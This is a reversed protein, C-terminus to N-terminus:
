SHQRVEFFNDSFMAHVLRKIQKVPISGTSMDVPVCSTSKDDTLSYTSKDAVSGATTDDLVSSLDDSVSGATMDDLVSSLDDSVSGATMDDPVSSLDDSVIVTDLNEITLLSISLFWFSRCFNFHLKQLSTHSAKLLDMICDTSCMSFRLEKLKKLKLEGINGHYGKLIFCDLKSCNQLFHGFNSIKTKPSFHCQLTKIKFDIDLLSIFDIKEALIFLSVAELEESGQSILNLDSNRYVYLELLNLNPFKCKLTKLHVTSKKEVFLSLTDLSNYCRSLIRSVDLTDASISLKKLRTFSEEKMSSSLNINDVDSIDLDKVQAPLGLKDCECNALTLKKLSKFHSFQIQKLDSYSIDLYQLSSESGKLFFKIDQFPTEDINDLSFELNELSKWQINLNNLEYLLKNRQKINDETFEVNLGSVKETGYKCLFTIIRDAQLATVDRLYLHFKKDSELVFDPMSSSKSVDFSWVKFKADLKTTM